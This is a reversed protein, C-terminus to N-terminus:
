SVMTAETQCNMITPVSPPDLKLHKVGTNELFGSSKRQLEMQVSCLYSKPSREGLDSGKAPPSMEFNLPAM